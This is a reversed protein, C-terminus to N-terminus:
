IKSFQIQEFGVGDGVLSPPHALSIRRRGLKRAIKELRGFIRNAMEASM